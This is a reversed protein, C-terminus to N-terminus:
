PSVPHAAAVPESPRSKLTSGSGASCAISVTTQTARDWNGGEDHLATLIADVVTKDLSSHCSLALQEATKVADISTKPVSVAQMNPVHRVFLTASLVLVAVVVSGVLFPPLRETPTKKKPQWRNCARCGRADQRIPKGCYVCRRTLSSDAIGM